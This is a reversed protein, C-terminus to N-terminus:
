NSWLAVYADALRDRWTTYNHGSESERYTVPYGKAALMVQVRRNVELLSEMRGVDFYFRIPHRRRAADDLASLAAVVREDDIQFASSQGGVRAFMDPHRLATWVSIVGGLSAGLLARGQRDGDTRYRSDILPVLEQAMFDAFSDNAWYEKMRNAPDVFVIIFPMIKKQAIMGDAISAAQARELYESGDQVYLVRYRENFRNYEPPLYVHVKRTGGLLRSPVEITELRGQIGKMQEALASSHYDPMTFNSNFGGVGNNNQNRNLPDLLWEGDAILKYEARATKPFTRTYYKVSTGPVDRMVLGAPRWGTFDGVVEVRKAMGRYLFTVQEGEILPANKANRLKELMDPSQQAGAEKQREEPTLGRVAIREFSTAGGPAITGVVLVADGREVPVDFSYAGQEDVELERREGGALAFARSKPRMRGRVTFTKGAEMSLLTEASPVDFDTMARAPPSQRVYRASVIDPTDLNRGEQLNVALRIFQAMSWALPTASGTGEGFRLDARPSAPKDWVQEPIMLGANAFGMMADLRRRAQAAEGRALEYQGREGALLAWLRGKGTYKGDFNWPRGDDMEGYGDHNYRYWSEGSPTDVKIVQNVVAVSKAILPDGPSKIGLRVLELFGADVIEREDFTGGGNGVNFPSGDNPDDNDTLRLYYNKDGYKGTTTATWREVNRAWEDAAALYIHASAGDDNRRAIEAACVLGAIEAAITSPSYGSKEEWREQPTRPGNRVLFDAAPRVHKTWTE